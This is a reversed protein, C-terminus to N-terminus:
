TPSHRIPQGKSQQSQTYKADYTGAKKEQDVQAQAVAKKSEPTQRIAFMPQGAMVDLKMPDTIELSHVSFTEIDQRYTYGPDLSKVTEKAMEESPFGDYARGQPDYVTWKLRGQPPVDIETEGVKGGWKKTYKKAFAPLIKDYFGKMGSGGIKLDQGSLTRLGNVNPEQEMIKRAVEKGIYDELAEQKVGEKDILRQHATSGKVGKSAILRQTEPNYHITDVQKSPDYREAQQEGTTWALKDYGNEAAYRLMRKFALGSWDKTKKFPADPVMDSRTKENFRVLNEYIVGHEKKEAPTNKGWYAIGYKKKMRSQYEEEKARWEALEKKEAATLEQKYGKKRGEQHWDSQIEEIFLVKDSQADTRDNMRVHALVNTEDFHGGRYADKEADISRNSNITVIAQDVAEKITAHKGAFPRAHVQGPPTIWYRAHSGKPEQPDHVTDYGKPLETIKASQKTPMRLLLERYNEGGPLQYQSFKTLQLSEENEVAFEVMEDLSRNEGHAQMIGELSAAVENAQTETGSVWREVFDYFDDKQVDDSLHTEAWDELDRGVFEKQDRDQVDVGGKEVEEIQINNAAITDLVQQKTIKGTLENVGSWELEEAKIGQKALWNKFQDADMKNPMKDEIARQLKSYWIPKNQEPLSRLQFATHFKAVDSPGKGEEHWNDIDQIIKRASTGTDYEEYFNGNDIEVTTEGNFANIYKTLSPRQKESLKTLIDINGESVRLNGERMFAIMGDTGGTGVAKGIDRHDYARMGPTGGERKGSFDLWTGKETIYGVEKANTTTGFIRAAKTSSDQIKPSQAHQIAAIWVPHRLEGAEGYEYIMSDLLKKADDAGRINFGQRKMYTNIKAYQQKTLKSTDVKIPRVQFAIKQQGEIDDKGVIRNKEKLTKFDEKNLFELQSGSAGGRLIPKGLLDTPREETVFDPVFEEEVDPMNLKQWEEESLPNLGEEARDLNDMLFQFSPDGSAFEISETNLTGTKKTAAIDGKLAEVGEQYLPHAKIKKVAERKLAAVKKEGATQKTGTQRFDPEKGAQEYLALIKKNIRSGRLERIRDILARLSDRAKGFLRRVGGAKEHLKSSFFHDRGEQAFHENVSRSDKSKKHYDQYLKQQSVSLRDFARHYWEEVVTDADHGRYLKVATETAFTELNSVTEGYIGYEMERGTAPDHTPLGERKIIDPTAKRVAGIVELSSNTDFTRDVNEILHKALKHTGEDMEGAELARDLEVIAEEGTATKAAKSAIKGKVTPEAETSGAAIGIPGGPHAAKPPAKGVELGLKAADTPKTVEFKAATKIQKVIQGIDERIEGAKTTPMEISPKSKGLGKKFPEVAKGARISEGKGPIYGKMFQKAAEQPSIVKGRTNKFLDGEIAGLLEAETAAVINDIQQLGNRKLAEMQANFGKGHQRLFEGRGGITVMKGDVIGTKAAAEALDAAKDFQNYSSKIEAKLADTMTNRLKRAHLAVDARSVLSFTMGVGYGKVGSFLVDKIQQRYPTGEDIGKLAQIGAFVEAGVTGATNANKVTQYIKPFKAAFQKVGGMREIGYLVRAVAPIGKIAETGTHAVRFLEGYAIWEVALASVEGSAPVIAPGFGSFKEAEKDLETILEKRNVGPMIYALPALVRTRMNRLRDAIEGKKPGQPKGTYPNEDGAIYAKAQKYVDPDFLASVNRFSKFYDVVGTGTRSLWGPQLDDWTELEDYNREVSDLPLGYEAAMDFTKGARNFAQEPTEDVATPQQEDLVPNDLVLTPKKKVPNDLILTAM